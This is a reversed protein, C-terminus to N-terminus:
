IRKVGLSSLPASLVHDGSARYSSNIHCARMISSKAELRKAKEEMEDDV